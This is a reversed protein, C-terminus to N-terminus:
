LNDYYEGDIRRALRALDRMWKNCHMTLGDIEKYGKIPNYFCYMDQWPSRWVINFPDDLYCRLRINQFFLVLSHVCKYITSM